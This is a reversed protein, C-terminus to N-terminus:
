HLQLNFMEVIVQVDWFRKGTWPETYVQTYKGKQVKFVKQADWEFHPALEPDILHDLIWNWLPRCWM